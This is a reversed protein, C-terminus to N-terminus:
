LTCNTFNPLNEPAMAAGAAFNECDTVNGVSWGSLNASFNSAGSFMSRMAVVSGVNWSSVDQNFASARSFMSNMDFVNSVDWNSIDQNFASARTFMDRMSTVNSVNWNGINQNFSSSSFFMGRMTTLSSVNWISIDQNFNPAQSFMSEMTTVNSVNWNSIDGNFATAEQFMSAMNTVSSVNWSSIDQNFNSAQSFMSQMTTVNSVNWSSIDQNFSEAQLFMNRMLTVNSVEWSSIDGNFASATGFMGEMNTVSSVNWTSIDGNFVRATNFLNGMNTVNSVNWGTLNQNFARAGVFMGNMDTVSSVNWNNIDQNFSAALFFMSRMNSVNSVDWNSIDQNFASAEFFMTSMSRVNSVDWGSLNQNFATAGGFTNIMNTINSVDWNGIAGNFQTCDRFTATMDTVQSLDPRDTANYTLNGCGLFAGNFSRWAIDGWAEITTIKNSELGALKSFDIHPFAGTISVTYTGPTAYTHSADDTLNSSSTGDGWDVTYDYTFNFGTEGISTPVTIGLDAAEVTWTTVFPNQPIPAPLGNCVYETNNIEETDLVGNANADLGVEIKFGGEQCNPGAPEETTVILSNLGNSGNTGNCVFQTTTIETEDLVGNANTDHGLEIKFGGNACNTGATEETVNILCKLGDEGDQGDQGNCVYETDTIESDDLVGNGNTDRGADVRFGGESCNAGAPEEAINLLSVAGDLGNCIFQTGSVESEALTGDGNADIGVEIKFGGNPCNDGPLEDTVRILSNTADVGNQGNCIFQSLTIESADLLGNGNTDLGVDIKSGGNSCNAGPAEETILILSNLGNMGEEDNSCGVLCLCCALVLMSGKLRSYTFIRTSFRM